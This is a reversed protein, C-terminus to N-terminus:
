RLYREREEDTLKRGTRALRENALALLDDLGSCLDCTYKRVTGDAGGTVIVRGSPDFRVATVPGEHGQLRLIPDAGLPDWLAARTAATVIWRGDPSFAVDHVASNPSLVNLTTRTATDWIQVTRDRSATALLRGDPSFAVALVRDRHGGLVSARGDMKLVVTNGRITATMGNPGDITRQPKKGPEVGLQKGTDLEIVHGRGGATALARGHADVELGTVPSALRALETLMPQDLADWIRATEDMSATVVSSGVPGSFAASTM